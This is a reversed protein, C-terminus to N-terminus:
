NTEMNLGILNRHLRNAAAPNIKLTEALKDPHYQLAQSVTLKPATREIHAALDRDLGKWQSLVDSSSKLRTPMRASVYKAVLQTQYFNKTYPKYRLSKRFSHLVNTKIMRSLQNGMSVPGQPDPPNPLRREALVKKFDNTIDAEYSVYTGMSGSVTAVNDACNTVSRGTLFLEVNDETTSTSTPIEIFHVTVTFQASGDTDGVGAWGTVTMTVRFQTESIQQINPIEHKDSAFDAEQTLEFGPPLYLDEQWKGQGTNNGTIQITKDGYAPDLQYGAPIFIDMPPATDSNLGLLSGATNGEAKLGFHQSTQQKKLDASTSTTTSQYQYIHATELIAKVCINAMTKPRKVILFHEQVGEIVRLGNVFTNYLAPETHPRANHFFVARNMGQHYSDLQHYLNSIQTTSGYSERKEISNDITRINELANGVTSKSGVTM